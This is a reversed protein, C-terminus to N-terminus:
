QCEEREAEARRCVELRLIRLQAFTSVFQQTQSRTQGPIMEREAERVLRDLTERRVGIDANPQMGQSALACRGVVELLSHISIARPEAADSTGPVEPAVFLRTAPDIATSISDVGMTWVEEAVRPASTAIRTRASRHQKLSTTMAELAMQRTLYGRSYKMRFWRERTPLQDEVGEVESSMGTLREAWSLFQAGYLGPTRTMYGRKLRQQMEGVARRLIAMNVVWKTKENPQIDFAIFMRLVVLAEAYAQDNMFYALALNLTGKTLVASRRRYIIPDSQSFPAESRSRGVLSFHTAMLMNFLKSGTPRAPHSHYVSRLNRTEDVCKWITCFAYADPMDNVLLQRHYAAEFFEFARDYRHGARATRLTLGLMAANPNVGDTMTDQLMKRIFRWPRRPRRRICLQAMTVYPTADPIFMSTRSESTKEDGRAIIAPNKKHQELLLSTVHRHLSYWSSATRHDKTREAVLIVHNAVESLLAPDFRAPHHAWEMVIRRLHSYENHNAYLEVIAKITRNPIQFEPYAMLAETLHGLTRLPIIIECRLIAHIIQVILSSSPSDPQKEHVGVTLNHVLHDFIRLANEPEGHAIFSRIQFELWKTRLKGAKYSSSVVMEFAEDAWGFSTLLHRIQTNLERKNSSPQPIKERLRSQYEHITEFDGQSMTATVYDDRFEHDVPDELFDPLSPAPCLNAQIPNAIARARRVLHEQLPALARRATARMVSLTFLTFSFHRGFTVTVGGESM